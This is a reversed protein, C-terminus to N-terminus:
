RGARRSRKKPAARQKARGAPPQEAFIQDLLDALLDNMLDDVEVAEQPAPGALFDAVGIRGEALRRAHDRFLGLYRLEQELGAFLLETEEGLGQPERGRGGGPASDRLAKYEASLERLQRRLARNEELLAALQRKAEDEDSERPAVVLLDREIEVLRALDGREYARTVDKMVATLRSKEGADQVKDPHLHQALRRFLSKLVGAREGPRAASPGAEGRGPEEEATHRPGHEAGAGGSPPAFRPEDAEDATDLPLLRRYLRRVRARDRKSLPSESGLLEEMVADVERVARLWSARLQEFRSAALSARERAGAEAERCAVRKKAIDRLLKEHKKREAELKLETATRRVALGRAPLAEFDFETQRSGPDAM